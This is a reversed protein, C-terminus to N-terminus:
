KAGRKRRKAPPKKKKGSGTDAAVRREAAAKAKKAVCAELWTVVCLHTKKKYGGKCKWTRLPKGVFQTRSLPTDDVEFDGGESRGLLDACARSALRASEEDALSYLAFSKGRVKLETRYKSGIKNGNTDTVPGILSFGDGGEKTRRRKGGKKNNKTRKKLLTFVDQGYPLKGRPASPEFMLTLISMEKKTLFLLYSPLDPSNGALLEAVLAAEAAFSVDGRKKGGLTKNQKTKELLKFVRQGYPLQGRPASPQFILTLSSMEKKTLFLLYSPLDPSNGALLEEVVNCQSRYSFPGNEEPFNKNDVSRLLVDHGALANAAARLACDRDTQNPTSAFESLTMALAIADAFRQAQTQTAWRQVIMEAHVNNLDIPILGHVDTAVEHAFLTATLGMTVIPIEGGGGSSGVLSAIKALSATVATRTAASSHAVHPVATPLSSCATQAVTRAAELDDESVCGHDASARRIETIFLFFFTIMLRHLQQLRMYDSSSTDVKAKEKPDCTSKFFKSAMLLPNAEVLLVQKALTEESVGSAEAAARMVVGLCCYYWSTDDSSRSLGGRPSSAKDKNNDPAYHANIGLVPNTSDSVYAFSMDHVTAIVPALSWKNKAALAERMTLIGFGGDGNPCCTNIVDNIWNNGGLLLQLSSPAKGSDLAGARPVSRRLESPLSQYNPFLV